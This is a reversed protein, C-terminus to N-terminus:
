NTADPDLLEALRKAFRRATIGAFDSIGAPYDKADATMTFVTTVGLNVHGTLTTGRQVATVSPALIDNEGYDSNYEHRVGENYPPGAKELIENVRDRVEGDDFRDPSWTLGCLQTTAAAAEWADDTHNKLDHFTEPIMALAEAHEDVWALQDETYGEFFEADTDGPRTTVWSLVSFAMEEVEPWTGWAPGEMAGSFIPDNQGYETVAYVYRPRDSVQETLVVRVHHSLRSGDASLTLTTRDIGVGVDLDFQSTLEEGDYHRTTRIISVGGYGIADLLAEDHKDHLTDPRDDSAHVVRYTTITTM